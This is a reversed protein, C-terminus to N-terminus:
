INGKLKESFLNDVNKDVYQKFDSVVDGHNYKGKIVDLFGEVSINNLFLAHTRKDITEIENEDFYVTIENENTQTKATYFLEDTREYVKPSYRDYIDDDIIDELKMELADAVVKCTDNIIVDIGSELEEFSNYEM